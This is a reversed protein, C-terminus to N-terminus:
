KKLGSMRVYDIGICVDQIIAYQMADISILDYDLRHEEINLTIERLQHLFPM